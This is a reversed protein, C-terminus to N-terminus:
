RRPINLLRSDFARVLGDRFALRRQLRPKQLRRGRALVMLVGVIIRRLQSTKLGINTLNTCESGVVLHESSEM